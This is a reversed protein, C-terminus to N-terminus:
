LDDAAAAPGMEVKQMKSFRIGWLDLAEKKMMRLGSVGNAKVTKKIDVILGERTM